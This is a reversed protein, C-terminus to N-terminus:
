SGVLIHIVWLDIVLNLALESHAQGGEKVLDYEVQFMAVTFVIFPNTDIVCNEENSRENKYIHSM